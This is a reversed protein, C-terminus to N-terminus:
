LFDSSDVRKEGLLKKLQENEKRLIENEYQAMELQVKYDNAMGRMMWDTEM